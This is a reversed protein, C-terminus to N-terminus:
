LSLLTRPAKPPYWPVIINSDHKQSNSLRIARKALACLAQFPPLYMPCLPLLHVGAM